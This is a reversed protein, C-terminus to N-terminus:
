RLKRWKWSRKFKAQSRIKKKDLEKWYRVTKRLRQVKPDFM